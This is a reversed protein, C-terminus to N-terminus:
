ERHGRAVRRPGVFDWPGAAIFGSAVTGDADEPYLYDGALQERIFRPYPKDSNFARIVYDRYPWAHDRRKDKDYGHTDAYHVIDLWHRGWREGYRPSALLREVLRGEAQPGNAAVFADIEGPSPPLGHLDFTLRRILTVRDAEPAPRLGKAELAALVFGDVPNRMWGRMKVAPVAPRTLPRLSWWKADVVPRGERASLIVGEPWAAGDDIWKRIDAIQEPTLPAGKRPMAPKDGSILEVLRSAGSKGPVIVAGQDGGRLLAARSALSLGGRSRTTNHCEVCRKRLVPAIRTTFFPESAVVRAGSGLGVLILLMSLLPRSPTRTMFPRRTPLPPQRVVPRVVKDIPPPSAPRQCPITRGPHARPEPNDSARVQLIKGQRTSNKVDSSQLTRASLDLSVLEEM